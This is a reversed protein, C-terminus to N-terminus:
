KVDTRKYCNRCELFLLEKGNNFTKVALLDGNCDSCYMPTSRYIDRYKDSFRDIKCFMMDAMIM